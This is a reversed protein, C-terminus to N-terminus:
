SAERTKASLYVPQEVRLELIYLRGMTWRVKTLLRDCEDLICLVGHKIIITWGGEEMQWLSIIYYVESLRRHKGTDGLFIITGHGEIEVVSGDGFKVSGRVGFDIESFASGAGSM